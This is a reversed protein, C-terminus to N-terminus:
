EHGLLPLSGAVKGAASKGGELLAAQRRALDAREQDTLREWLDAPVWMDWDNGRAALRRGGRRPKRRRGTGKRSDTAM